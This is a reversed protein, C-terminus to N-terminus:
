FFTFYYLEILIFVIFFLFNFLFILYFYYLLFQFLKFLIFKSPRAANWNHSALKKMQTPGKNRDHFSLEERYCLPGGAPYPKSYVTHGKMPPFVYLRWCIM